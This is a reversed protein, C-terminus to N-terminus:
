KEDSGRARRRLYDLTDEASMLWGFECRYGKPYPAPPISALANAGAKLDDVLLRIHPDYRFWERHLWHAAFHQHLDVEISPAVGQVWHDLELIIPSAAQIQHLRREPNRSVGIKVFSREHDAIFYLTTDSM